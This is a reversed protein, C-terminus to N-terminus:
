TSEGMKQLRVEYSQDGAYEDVYHRRMNRAVEKATDADDYNLAHYRMDLQTDWITVVYRDMPLKGPQQQM